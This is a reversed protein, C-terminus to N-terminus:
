SRLSTARTSPTRTANNTANASIRSLHLAVDVAWRRCAQRQAGALKLADVVPVVRPSSPRMNAVGANATTTVALRSRHVRRSEFVGARRAEREASHPVRQRVDEASRSRKSRRLRKRQQARRSPWRDDRRCQPRHRFRVQQDLWMAILTRSLPARARETRSAPVVFAQAPHSAHPSQRARRSPASHRVPYQAGTARVARRSRRPRAGQCPPCVRLANALRRATASPM